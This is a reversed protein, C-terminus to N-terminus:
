TFRRCRRVVDALAQLNFPKPLCADCGAERALAEEQNV